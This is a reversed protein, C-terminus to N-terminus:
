RRLKFQLVKCNPQSQWRNLYPLWLLIYKIIMGWLETTKYEFMHDQILMVTRTAVSWTWSPHTRLVSACGTVSCPLPRAPPYSLNPRLLSSHVLKYWREWQDGGCVPFWPPSLSSILWFWVSTMGPFSWLTHGDPLPPWLFCNLATNIWTQLISGSKCYQNQDITSIRIQLISGPRYYQYKDVTNIRTQLISEAQYTTNVM